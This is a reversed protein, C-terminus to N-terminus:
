KTSVVPLGCSQWEGWGNAYVKVNDLGCDILKRAAFFSTGCASNGCYVIIESSNKLVLLNLSSANKLENSPVNIANPIHGYRYFEQERTDIITVNGIQKSQLLEALTIIPIDIIRKKSYKSGAIYSFCVFTAIGAVVVITKLINALDVLSNFGRTTM